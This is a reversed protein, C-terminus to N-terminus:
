FEFKFDFGIAFEKAGWDSILIELGKVGFVLQMPGIHLGSGLSLSAVNAQSNYNFATRIPFEFIKVKPRVELGTSFNFTVYENTLLKNFNSVSLDLALKLDLNKNKLPTFAVGSRVATSPIFFTAQNNSELGTNISKELEEGLDKSFEQFRTPNISVKFDLNASSSAPFVFFGIDTASIGFRFFNNVAVIIGLDTGLGWAFTGEASLISSMIDPITNDPVNNLIQKSIESVITNGSTHLKGKVNAHYSYLGTTEDPTGTRFKLSTDFITFNVPLYFHGSFGVYVADVPLVKEMFAARSSMSFVIDTYMVASSKIGATLPKSLSLNQLVTEFISKSFVFSGDFKNIISFAISFNNFRMFTMLSVNRASIGTDVGYDPMMELKKNILKTIDPNDSLLKKYLEIFDATAFTNNYFRFGYSGLLNLGFRTTSMYIGAPNYLMAEFGDSVSTYAGNWSVSEATTIYDLSNINVTLVFFLVTILKRISFNLFLKQLFKTIYIM